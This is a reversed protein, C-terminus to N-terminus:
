PQWTFRGYRLTRAPLIPLEQWGDKGDIMINAGGKRPDPFSRTLFGDPSWNHDDGRGAVRKKKGDLGVM